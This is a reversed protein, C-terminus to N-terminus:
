APETPTRRLLLLLHDGMARLLPLRRLRDELRALRDIRAASWRTGPPPLMLGLSARDELTFWPKMASAIARAGLYRTRVVGGEVPVDVEAALRELAARPRGGVLAGLTWSPNLRPMTVVVLPAGPPLARALLAGARAPDLCNIVGFDLVAADFVGIGDLAGPAELSALRLDAEPARARAEELMGRSADLGVVTHGRDLLWRTDLGVGCGGDLVRAGPALVRELLAWVVARQARAVPDQGWVEAYRSAHQDFASPAGPPASPSFWADM